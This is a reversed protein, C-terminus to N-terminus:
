FKHCNKCLETESQADFRFMLMGNSGHPNHCSGCYFPRGPRTPDEMAKGSVLVKHHGHKITGHCQLCLDPPPMLLLAIEDSSHPTHCTLCKGAYVPGHNNMKNTFGAKDHCTFCLGPPGSVLLNAKPSSHPNHCSTCGMAIAPHVTKKTFLAADHCGYCLQPQESSLGRPLKNTKKHPVARADIGSHCTECGMEVAPHVVKERVLKEHCTRCNVEASLVPSPSLFLFLLIGYFVGQKM